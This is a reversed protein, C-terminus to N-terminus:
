NFYYSAYIGGHSGDFKLGSNIGTGKFHENVYRLKLGLQKIPFYEAELIGGVTSDFPVDDDALVGSSTIRADLSKRLGAGLRVNNSVSVYGLAEMPFRRFTYSGNSGNASDFHYGLSLQVSLPTNTIQFDVGGRFDVMGGASINVTDGNSFNVAALTDGGATLGFGVFPRVPGGPRTNDAQASLTLTLAALAFLTKKM